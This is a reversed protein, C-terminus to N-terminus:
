LPKRNLKDNHGAVEELNTWGLMYFCLMEFTRKTPTVVIARRVQYNIQLKASCVASV